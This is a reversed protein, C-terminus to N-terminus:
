RSIMNLVTAAIFKNYEIFLYRFNQKTTVVSPIILAKSGVLKNTELLTRPMHYDSTVLRITRISNHKIFDVIELANTKTSYAELGFIVNNMDVDPKKLISRLEKPSGVGSIFLIPAYNNKFFELAIKIRDKGGTYVVIADTKTDIFKYSNILDKYYNFGILWLAFISIFIRLIRKM